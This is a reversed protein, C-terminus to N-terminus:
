PPSTRTRTKMTSPETPQENPVQTTETVHDAGAPTHYRTKNRRRPRYPSMGPKEYPPRAPAPPKAPPTLRIITTKHPNPVDPPHENQPTGCHPCQTLHKSPSTHIIPLGAAAPTHYENLPDNNPPNDDQFGGNPQTRTGRITTQPTNMQQNWNLRHGAVTPIHDQKRDNSGKTTTSHSEIGAFASILVSSLQPRLRKKEVLPSDGRNICKRGNTFGRTSIDILGGGAGALVSSSSVLFSSAGCVRARIGCWCGGSSVIVIVPAFYALARLWALGWHDVIWWWYVSAEFVTGCVWQLPHTAINPSYKKMPHVM